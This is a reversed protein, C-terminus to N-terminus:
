LGQGAFIREMQALRKRGEENLPGGATVVKRLYDLLKASDKEHGKLMGPILEIARKENLRLMLYQERLLEKFEALSMKEGQEDRIRRLMEFGREDAANEPLSVYVMARLAAAAPGGKDMRAKLEEIRGNVFARHDSDWGPNSRPGDNVAQLGLMAHLLPQQYVMFFMQESLMDRWERFADLGLQMWESFYQEWQLFINGAKAPQRDALVQEAAKALPQVLPNRDSILEYSLRLPHMRRLMEASTETAMARMFPQATNRYLSNNVESLRAVAAFCRDDEPSNGGMARIDDLSRREFRTVYAGEALEANYTDGSIKEFVAEYLGFPLCDILDINAAFELHEKEGKKM